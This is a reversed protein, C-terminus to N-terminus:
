RLLFYVWAANAVHCYYEKALHKMFQCGESPFDELVERKAFSLALKLRWSIASINRSGKYERFLILFGFFVEMYISQYM